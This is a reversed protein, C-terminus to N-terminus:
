GRETAELTVPVNEAAARNMVMGMLRSGVGKRRAERRVIVSKV